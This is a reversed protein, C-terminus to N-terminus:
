DIWDILDISGVFMRILSWDTQTMWVWGLLFLFGWKQQLIDVECFFIVVKLDLFVIKQSIKLVFDYSGLM